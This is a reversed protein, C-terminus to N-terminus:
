SSAESLQIWGVFVCMGIHMLSYAHDWKEKNIFKEQLSLRGTYIRLSQYLKLLKYLNTWLLSQQGTSSSM